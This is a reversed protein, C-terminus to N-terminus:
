STQTGRFRMQVHQVFCITRSLDALNFRSGQLPFLFPALFTIQSIKEGSGVMEPLIKDIEIYQLFFVNCGEWYPSSLIVDRDWFYRNANKRVTKTETFNQRFSFVENCTSSDGWRTKLNGERSFYSSCKLSRNNTNLIQVLSCLRSLPMKPRLITAITIM